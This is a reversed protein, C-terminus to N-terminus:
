ALMNDKMKEKQFEWFEENNDREFWGEFDEKGEKKKLQPLGQKLKKNIWESDLIIDTTDNPVVHEEYHGRGVSKAAWNGIEDLWEDGFGGKRGMMRGSKRFSGAKIERGFFDKKMELERLGNRVVSQMTVLRAPDSNNLSYFLPTRGMKWRKAEERGSKDKEEMRKLIAERSGEFEEAKKRTFGEYKKWLKVPCFPNDLKSGWICAESGERSVDVKNGHLHFILFSEGLIVSQRDVSFLDSIRYMRALSLSMFVALRTKKEDWKEPLGHLQVFRLFLVGPDIFGKKKRNSSTKQVILEKRVRKVLEGNCPNQIGSELFVRELAMNLNNAVGKPRVVDAREYLYQVVMSEMRETKMELFDEKTKEFVWAWFKEWIRNLLRREKADGLLKWINEEWEPRREKWLDQINRFKKAEVELDCGTTRDGGRRDSTEMDSAGESGPVVSTGALTSSDSNSNSERGEAEVGSKKTVSDTSRGLQERRELEDYTRGGGRGWRGRISLQFSGAEPKGEICIQGCLPSGLDKAAEQIIHLFDDLQSIGVKEFTSGSGREGGLSYVRSSNDSGPKGGEHIDEESNGGTSPGTGDNSQCVGNRGQQRDKTSDKKRKTERGSQRNGDGGGEVRKRKHTKEEMGEDMEREGKDKNGEGSGGMGLGICGDGNDYGDASEGVARGEMDELNGVLDTPGRTSETVFVGEKEGVRAEVNEAPMEDPKKHFNTNNSSCSINSSMEGSSKGREQGLSTGCKSGKDTERCGESDIKEKPLSSSHPSGEGDHRNDNRPVGENSKSRERDEGLEHALGPEEFLDVSGGHEGGGKDEDGGDSVPRGRVVGSKDGAEGSYARNSTEGASPLHLPVSYKGDGNSSLSLVNGGGSFGPVKQAGGEDGHSSLRKKHGSKDHVGRGEVDGGSGRLERKSVQASETSQKCSTSGRDSEMKGERKESNCFDSIDSRTKSKDKGGLGRGRARGRIEEFGRKSEQRGKRSESEKTATEKRKRITSTGGGGAMEVSGKVSGVEEMKKQEEKLKRIIERRKSGSDVRRDERSEEKRKEERKEEIEEKEEKGRKEAKRKREEEARRRRREM